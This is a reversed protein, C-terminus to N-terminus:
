GRRSWRWGFRRRGRNYRTSYQNSRQVSPADPTRTEASDAEAAPSDAQKEAVEESAAPNEGEEATTSPAQIEETTSTTENAAADSNPADPTIVM